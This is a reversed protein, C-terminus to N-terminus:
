RASEMVGILRAVLGDIEHDRAVIARLKSGLEARSAAPQDLLARLKAALDRVDGARFCLQRGAEGLSAITRPFADSCSLVPRECAMAELVVKDLSGTLSANLCVSAKRYFDPIRLYSVPEHLVIRQGLGLEAIRQRVKKEYEADLAIMGGGVLDLSVDRGEAVLSGLAEILTLADKKPSMRGVSLLRPAGLPATGRADFHELDIGHGTVLKKPTDLRLSEESATFIREVVREAKRLRKDVAGHTYWLFLRAKSRRAPGAAVIAYRPIMHALVVDFGDKVLAERLFSRFRLYRGLTGKRGVVRVDVNEALGSTDGISLAVVRVREARAAFSEIWRPVFGLTADQRDLVQTLFLIRM